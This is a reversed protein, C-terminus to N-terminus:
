GDTVSCNNYARFAAYSSMADYYRLAGLLVGIHWLQHSHAYLDFAGPYLREPYQMLYFFFGAGYFAFTQLLKWFFLDAQPSSLGGVLFVWHFLPVLAFTVFSAFFIVSAKFNRFLAPIYPWALAVCSLVFVVSLYIRGLTVHCWYGYHIGVLFSATIIGAIGTMDAQLARDYALKSVPSLLHFLASTAMCCQAAAIYLSVLVRHHAPMDSLIVDRAFFFMFIFLGILHTFVNGTENHVFLLSSFCQRISM